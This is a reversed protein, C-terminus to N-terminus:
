RATRWPLPEAARHALRDLPEGRRVCDASQAPASSRALGIITHPRYVRPRRLSISMTSFVHGGTLFIPKAMATTGSGAQELYKAAAFLGPSRLFYACM